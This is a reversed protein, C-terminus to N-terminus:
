WSTEIDIMLVKYQGGNLAGNYNSFSFTNGMGVPHCFEFGIGQDSTSIQEGVDYASFLLQTFFLGRLIFNYMLSVHQNNM